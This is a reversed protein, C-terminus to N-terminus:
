WSAFTYEDHIVVLGQCADHRPDQAAPTELAVDRQRPGLGPAHDPDLVVGHSEQVHAERVLRSVAQELLQPRGPGVDGHDHDRADVVRLKAPGREVVSGEGVVDLRDARCLEVQQHDVVKLAAAQLHGM